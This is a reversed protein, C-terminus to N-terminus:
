VPATPQWLWGLTGIKAVGDGGFLINGPKLDRHVIGRSHAFELGRCVAQAIELVQELPIRHNDAKEILGEVDGGEMLPLVMFPQGNEDGLDFVQVIHPHDGLRGMTQAERSIRTRGADDLGDTKILAFAVDRDLTTDHALYVKKKGGEGLLRKVQYRGSAFSTPLPPATPTPTPEPVAPDTATGAQSPAGLRRESARLYASAEPNDEDLDLVDQALDHVQQWDGSAEAADIQDLLRETRRQLRESAM